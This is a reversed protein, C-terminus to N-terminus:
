IFWFRHSYDCLSFVISNETSYYLKTNSRITLSKSQAHAVIKKLVKYIRLRQTYTNQTIYKVLEPQLIITKTPVGGKRAPRNADFQIFHTFPRAWVFMVNLLM